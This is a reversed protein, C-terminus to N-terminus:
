TKHAWRGEETTLEEREMERVASVHQCTNLAVVVAAVQTLSVPGSAAQSFGRTTDDAGTAIAPRARLPGGGVPLREQM